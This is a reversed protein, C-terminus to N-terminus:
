QGIYPSSKYTTQLWVFPINEAVEKAKDACKLNVTFDKTNVKSVIWDHASLKDFIVQDIVKGGSVQLPRLKNYIRVYNNIKFDAVELQASAYLYDQGTQQVYFDRLVKVDKADFLEGDVLVFEEDDWMTTQQKGTKAPKYANGYTAGYTKMRAVFVKTWLEPVGVILKKIDAVTEHLEPLYLCERATHEFQYGCSFNLCAVKSGDTMDYSKGSLQRCDTVSGSVEPRGTAKKVADFLEKSDYGYSAVSKGGSHERKRDISIYASAIKDLAQFEKGLVFAKSGLCGSEEKDFICFAFKTPHELMVQNIAWCGARDDAGLGHASFFKKTKPDFELTEATPNKVVTDTHAMLVPLKGTTNKPVAMFWLPGSFTDYCTMDLGQLTKELTQEHSTCAMLEILHREAATFDGFATALQKVAVPTPAPTKYPVTTTIYLHKPHVYSVIGDSDAVQISHSTQHGSLRVTVIDGDFFAPDGHVACQLGFYFHIPNVKNALSMM